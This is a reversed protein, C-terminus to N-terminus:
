APPTSGSRAARKKPPSGIAPLERQMQEHIHRLPTQTGLRYTLDAHALGVTYVEKAFGTKAELDALVIRGDTSSFLRKYARTLDRAAEHRKEAEAAPTAPQSSESM